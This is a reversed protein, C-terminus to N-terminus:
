QRRGWGCCGNKRTDEGDVCQWGKKQERGGCDEMGGKTWDTEHTREKKEGRDRCGEIGGEIGAVVSKREM